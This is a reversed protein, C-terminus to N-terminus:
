SSQAPKAHLREVQWLPLAKHMFPKTHMFAVARLTQKMVDCIFAEDYPAKGTKRLVDVKEQLEGGYCPEM